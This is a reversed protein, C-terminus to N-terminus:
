PAPQPAAPLRQWTVGDFHMFFPELQELRESTTSGQCLVWVDDAGVAVVSRTRFEAPSQAEPLPLISWASGDWHWLSSGEDDEGAVWVDQSSTAAISSAM